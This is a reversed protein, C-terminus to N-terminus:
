YVAKSRFFNAMKGERSSIFPSVAYGAKTGSATKAQNEEWKARPLDMHTHQNVRLRKQFLWIDGKCLLLCNVGPDGGPPTNM